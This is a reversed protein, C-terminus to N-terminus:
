KAVSASTAATVKSTKDFTVRYTAKSPKRFTYSAKGSKFDVTKITKWTSGSKVQLKARKPSYTSYEYADPNFYKATATLTVKSGSRSAKLYAKAQGRVYFTRTTYDVYNFFEYDDTFASVDTPGVKYAGLGELPCVQLRTSTSDGDFFVHNVLYGGRTVDASLSLQSISSDVSRSVKVTVKRCAGRDFVFDPVSFGTVDVPQDEAAAAPASPVVTGLVVVMAALVSRWRGRKQM